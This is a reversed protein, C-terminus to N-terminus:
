FVFPLHSLHEPGHTWTPAWLFSRIEPKPKTWNQSTYIVPFHFLLHFVERERQLEAKLIFLLYFYTFVMQMLFVAAKSLNLGCVLCYM